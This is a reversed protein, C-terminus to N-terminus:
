ARRPRIMEIHDIGDETYKTGIRCFGFAAYFDLLYFQAGIRIDNGPYVRDCEDIALAVVRRAMGRGRIEKVTLVRGISPEAFHAGPAILRAYAVIRGDAIRGTLHRSVPDFTDADRYVCHQEVVFVEQRVALIEHMERGSLDAFSQWRWEVDM